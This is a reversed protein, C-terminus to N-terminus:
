KLEKMINKSEIITNPLIIRRGIMEMEGSYDNNSVKGEIIIEKGLISSRKEQIPYSFNNHEEALKFAEEANMGLIEEAQVGFFVTRINDSGDDVITSLFMAKKPEIEGHENCTTGHVRRKCKPCIDYFPSKEVINVIAGRIEYVGEDKISSIKTRQSQQQINDVKPLNKAEPIDPNIDIKSTSRAHVEIGNMGEKVYCNTIKVVDGQKMKGEEILQIHKTDWFVTRMKGTADGVLFSCVKGSTGKKTKFEKVPYISLIRAVFSTMKLGSVINKIEQLGTETAKFLQIGFDNAVIHAAGEKSVLGSLEEVKSDIKAEIVKEDLGTKEKINSIIESMPIKLM